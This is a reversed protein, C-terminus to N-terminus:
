AKFDKAPADGTPAPAAPPVNAQTAQMPAPGTTAVQNQTVMTGPMPAPGGMQMPGANPTVVGIPKDMPAGAPTAWPTAPMGPQTPWAPQAPTQGGMQMPGANPTAWPNAPMGPQTPWTSPAAPAPQAQPQAQPGWGQQQLQNFYVPNQNYLQSAMYNGYGPMMPGVMGTMGYLANFTNAYDSNQNPMTMGTNQRMKRLTDMAYEFVDPILEIFGLAMFFQRAMEPSANLIFTKITEIINILEVVVNEVDERTYNDKMEWIKGCYTCQVLGDNGHDIITFQGNHKHTCMDRITDLKDRVINFGNSSVLMKHEEESMPNTMPPLAPMAPKAMWNYNGPYAQPYGYGGWGTAMQNQADFFGKEM